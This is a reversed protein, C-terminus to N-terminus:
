DYSTSVEATMASADKMGSLEKRLQENQKEVNAMEVHNKSRCHRAIVAIGANDIQLVKACWTCKVSFDTVKELYLGIIDGNADTGELWAM